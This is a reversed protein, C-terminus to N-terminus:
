LSAGPPNKFREKSFFFYHLNFTIISYKAHLSSVTPDSKLEFTDIEHIPYQYEFGYEMHGYRGTSTKIRAGVLFSPAFLFKNIKYGSSATLWDMAIGGTMKIRMNPHTRFKILYMLQFPIQFSYIDISGSPSNYFSATTSLIGTEIGIVDGLIYQVVMGGKVYLYAHLPYTQGQGYATPTESCIPIGLGGKVGVSFESKQAMTSSGYFLIFFSFLKIPKLKM